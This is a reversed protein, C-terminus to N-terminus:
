IYDRGEEKAEKIRRYLTARSMGYKKAVAVAGDKKIMEQIDALKIRKLFGNEDFEVLGKEDRKLVSKKKRGAKRHTIREIEKVDYRLSVVIKKQIKREDVLKMEGNVADMLRELEKLQEKNDKVTGFLELMVLSMSKRGQRMKLKSVRKDYAM